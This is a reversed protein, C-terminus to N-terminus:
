SNEPGNALDDALRARKEELELWRTEMEALAARQAALLTGAKEFKAPDRRYLDPDNLAAEIIRIDNEAAAMRAPLGDLEHREKNPFRQREGATPSQRTRAPEKADRAAPTKQFSQRETEPRQRLYDSYGGPYEAVIGQGEVTIVSTSLRDLFDRDHSVILATGEYDGLVEQLLDLTDMDLDNTPEDLVILNGPAAFLKAILLRAREGGSLARIPMLAQKEDFLFDKLYSVVHRQQGRVMISDGGGPALTRWLTEDLDFIERRQDLYLPTVNAGLRVRGSDPKLTGTLLKLLTTKGAGNPGIIGIRDGRMIRTSFNRIIPQAIGHSDPFSKSIQVAEIVMQGSNEAADLALKATGQPKIRAAREARLALLKRRRGENRSRRATVGRALWYEEAEIRKQLRRANAIEQAIVTESWSEFAKFGDNLTFLRGRDLWFVRQSLRNLFARDHSITLIGGPYTALRDELWTITPLDLHNTPEDLLLVDPDGILMRAIAARRGEGGSLTAAPRTGELGLQGLITAVRYDDVHISDGHAGSRGLGGAVYEAVSGTGFDPDQPLYGISLGPQCFRAGGDLGAIGAMAKLITSKGSGNAGVLCAREGKGLALTIGSFLPRGGFTITADRLALLPPSAAPQAM